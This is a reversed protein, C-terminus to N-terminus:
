SRGTGHKDHTRPQQVNCVDPETYHQEGNLREPDMGQISKEDLTRVSNEWHREGGEKGIDPHSAWLLTELRDDPARM